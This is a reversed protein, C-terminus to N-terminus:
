LYRELIRRSAADLSRIDSVLYHIGQADIMLASHPGLRRVDDDSNLVFRTPGRDTEVEWDYPAAESKMRVVRQIVPVFERQALEEELMQRVGASLLAPDEVCVLEQGSSDCISIWHAPDTLPFARIPEVGVHRHGHADILVLRGWADRHLDIGVLVPHEAPAGNSEVKM